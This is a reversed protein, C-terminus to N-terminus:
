SVEAISDKLSEETDKEEDDAGTAGEGKADSATRGSRPSKMGKMANNLASVRRVAQTVKKLVDSRHIKLAYKVTNENLLNMVCLKFYNRPANEDVNKANRTLEGTAILCCKWEGKINIGVFRGTVSDGFGTSCIYREFDAAKEQKRYPLNRDGGAEYKVTFEMKTHDYSIIQGGKRDPHVFRCGVYHQWQDGIERMKMTRLTSIIGGYKHNRLQTQAAKLSLGITRPIHKVVTCNTLPDVSLVNREEPDRDIYKIFYLKYVSDYALVQCEEQNLLVLKSLSLFSSCSFFYFITKWTLYSSPTPSFLSGSPSLFHPMPNCIM